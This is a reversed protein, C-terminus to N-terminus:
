AVLHVYRQLRSPCTTAVTLRTGCLDTWRCTAIVLTSSSRTASTNASLTELSRNFCVQNRITQADDSKPLISPDYKSNQRKNESIKQPSTKLVGNEDKFTRTGRGNHEKKEAYDKKEEAKTAPAGEETLVEDKLEDQASSTAPQEAKANEVEATSM